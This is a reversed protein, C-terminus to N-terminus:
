ARFSVALVPERRDDATKVEAGPMFRWGHCREVRQRWRKEYRSMLVPQFTRRGARWAM